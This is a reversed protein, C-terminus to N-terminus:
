SFLFLGAAGDRLVVPAFQVAWAAAQQVMGVVAKLTLSNTDRLLIMLCLDSCFGGGASKWSTEM